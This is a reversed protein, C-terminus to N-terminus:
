NFCPLENFKFKIKNEKGWNFKGISVEFPNNQEKVQIYKSPNEKTDQLLKDYNIDSLNLLNFLNIVNKCFDLSNSYSSNTVELTFVKGKQPLGTLTLPDFGDCSVLSAEKLLKVQETNVKSIFEKLVEKQYVLEFYKEISEITPEELFTNLINTFNEVTEEFSGKYNFYGETKLRHVGFSYLEASFVYNCKGWNINVMNKDCALEFLGKFLPNLNTVTLYFFHKLDILSLLFDKELALLVDENENLSVDLFQVDRGLSDNRSVADFLNKVSKNSYSSLTKNREYTKSWSDGKPDRSNLSVLKYEKMLSLIQKNIEHNGIINTRTEQYEKLLEILQPRYQEMTKKYLNTAFEKTLLQNLDLM